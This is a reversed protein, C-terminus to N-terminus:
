IGKKTGPIFNKVVIRWDVTGIVSIEDLKDLDVWEASLAHEKEWDDFGATSIAGGLYKMECFFLLSHYTHVHEFCFFNERTDLLRVFETDLGTEEKVEREAAQGINEYIELGGGPLAYGGRKYPCLLIKGNEIVIGYASPRWSLDSIPVKHTQGNLDTATITDPKNMPM